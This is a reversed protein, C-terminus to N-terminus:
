RVVGTRTRFGRREMEGWGTKRRLFSITGKLRWWSSLQRYGLGDVFCLGLLVLLDKRRPYRRFSLEELAVAAISLALGLVVALALFASVYVFSARGLVVALVFGGYGAAEILPGLGELFFFYPFALTGARGYRPNLLMVRHRTLSELLGRQWRDRQRGLVRLTEPCETWAVPDPAFGIRHPRGAESCHRRLRVVLEMDEGVTTTDYGGAEVVVSRRFMGFAGSIVLTAGMVDWGMRGALFARLYELVQLRALLKRPMRIEEVVGSRVTSGNVIRVIGGLAVLHADELFGRSIRTLADREVLTDVDIACFLPTRCLTLGANLADAKGGNVKDV